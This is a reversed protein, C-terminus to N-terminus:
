EPGAAAVPGWLPPDLPCSADAWATKIALYCGCGSHMCRDGAADYFGCTDARCTALRAAAAAPPAQPFGAQVHRAAAQVFNAARRLLGPPSPAPAAGIASRNVVHAGRLPDGSAAFECFHAFSPDTAGLCNAGPAVPCAPCRARPYQPESM